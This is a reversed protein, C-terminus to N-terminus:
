GTIRRKAICAGAALPNAVVWAGAAYLRDVFGPEDSTAIVVWDAIGRRMYRGDAAAIIEIPKPGSAWPPVFIAVAGREPPEVAVAALGGAVVLIFLAFFIWDGRRLAREVPTGGASMRHCSEKAIIAASM